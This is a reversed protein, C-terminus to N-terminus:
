RLENDKGLETLDDRQWYTANVSSDGDWDCHAMLYYWARVPATTGFMLQGTTGIKTNDGAPGAIVTYQCYLGGSPLNVRLTQWRTPLTTADTKNPGGTITAPFFDDSEACDNTGTATTLNSCAPLYYGFEAKFAEERSKLEGFIQPIEGARAKNVSKTYAVVAVAALVGIVAVVFMMEILTFGHSRHM